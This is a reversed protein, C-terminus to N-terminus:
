AAGARPAVAAVPRRACPLLHHLVRALTAAFALAGAALLLGAGRIWAAEGLWLTV